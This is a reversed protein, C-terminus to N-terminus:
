TGGLYTKRRLGYIYTVHFLMLLAEDSESIDRSSLVAM